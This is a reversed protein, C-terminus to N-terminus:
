ADQDGGIRSSLPHVQLVVTTVEEVEVHGPVGPPHFLAVAADVAGQLSGGHHVAMVEHQCISIFVPYQVHQDLIGLLDAFGQTGQRRYHHTPQTLQQGLPILGM